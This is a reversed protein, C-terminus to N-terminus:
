GECGPFTDVQAILHAVDHNHFSRLDGSAVEILCKEDARRGVGFKTRPVHFLVRLVGEAQHKQRKRQSALLSFAYACPIV